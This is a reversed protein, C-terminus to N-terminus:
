QRLEEDTEFSMDFDYCIMKNKVHSILSKQFSLNISRLSGCSITDRTEFVVTKSVSKLYDLHVIEIIQFIRDDLIQM